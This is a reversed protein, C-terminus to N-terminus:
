GSFRKMTRSLARHLITKNSAWMGGAWAGQEENCIVVRGEGNMFVFKNKKGIRREMASFDELAYTERGDLHGLYQDRYIVSDSRDDGEPAPVCSLTGNHVFALDRSIRHPHCNEVTVRGFTAYRFHFVVPAEPHWMQVTRWTQLFRSFGGLGKYIAVNGAHPVMFGAGDPNQIFCHHLLTDSVHVNAPKYLIICLRARERAQDYGM